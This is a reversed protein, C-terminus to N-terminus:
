PAPGKTMLSGLWTIISEWEDVRRWRRRGLYGLGDCAACRELGDMTSAKPEVGTGYCRQCIWTPRPQHM